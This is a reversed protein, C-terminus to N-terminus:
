TPLALNIGTNREGEIWLKIKYEASSPPSIDAEIRLWEVVWSFFEQYGNFPLSLLFV